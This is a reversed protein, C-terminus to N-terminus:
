YGLICPEDATSAAPSKGTLLTGNTRSLRRSSKRYSRGGSGDEARCVTPERGATVVASRGPRLEAETLRGQTHCACLQRGGPRVLALAPSFDVADVAKAKSCGVAAEQIRM